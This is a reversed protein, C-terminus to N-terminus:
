PLDNSDIAGDGPTAAGSTQLQPTVTPRAPPAEAQARVDVPYSIFLSYAEGSTAMGTEDVWAGAAFTIGIAGTGAVLALRRLVCEVLDEVATENAARCVVQLAVVRTLRSHQASAGGRANKQPDRFDDPRGGPVWVVRPGAALERAANIGTAHQLAPETPQQVAYDTVIGPMVAAVLESIYRIPTAM